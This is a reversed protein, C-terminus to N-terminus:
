GWQFGRVFGIAALAARDALELMSARFPAGQAAFTSDSGIFPPLVHSLNFPPIM